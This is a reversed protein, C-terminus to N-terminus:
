SHQHRDRKIQRSSGKSTKCYQSRGKYRNMIAVSKGIMELNEKTLPLGAKRLENQLQLQKVIQEQGRAQAQIIRLEYNADEAAKMFNLSSNIQRMLQDDKLNKNYQIVSESAEVHRKIDNLRKYATIYKELDRAQNILAGVRTEDGKEWPSRNIKKVLDEYQQQKENIKDFGKILEDIADKTKKWTEISNNNIVDDLTINFPKLSNTKAVEDYFEKFKEFDRKFEKTFPQQQSGENFTKAFAQTAKYIAAPDNKLLDKIDGTFNAYQKIDDYLIDSMNENEYGLIKSFDVFQNLMNRSAGANGLIDVFHSAGISKSKDKLNKIEALIRKQHLLINAEKLAEKQEKELQTIRGQTADSLSKEIEAIQKDIDLVTIKKTLIKDYQDAEKRLDRILDDIQDEARSKNLRDQIKQKDLANAEVVWKNPDKASFRKDVQEALEFLESRLNHGMTSFNIKNFEEEIEKPTMKYVDKQIKAKIIDKSIGAANAGEVGGFNLGTTDYQDLRNEIVLSAKASTSLRDEKALDLIVNGIGTWTDRFQEPVIGTGNGKAMNKGVTNWWKTLKKTLEETVELNSVMALLQQNADSMSDKYAEAAALMEPSIEYGLAGAEAILKSFNEKSAKNLTQIDRRNLVDYVEKPVKKGEDNFKRWADTLAAVKKEPSYGAMDRWSLGLAYFADRFKKEGDSARTLAYDLKGILTVMSDMEVGARSCAHQLAIYSNASMNVSKASKSIDDLKNTIKGIVTFVGAAAAGIATIGAAAAVGVPGLKTLLSSIGQIGNTVAQSANGASSALKSFTSSVGGVAKQVNQMSRSAQNEADKLGKKLESNDIEIKAKISM